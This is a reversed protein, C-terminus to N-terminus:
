RKSRVQRTQKSRRKARRKKRTTKRSALLFILLNMVLVYIPFAIVAFRWDTVTLLTIVMSLASILYSPSFESKPDVLSKKVTPLSSSFDAIMMFLIALLPNKTTAWLVIGILAIIVCILNLGKLQFSRPNKFITATFVLLPSLGLTFTVLATMGVGAQLEAAFAIMPIIAWLLWSVPDPRAKGRLTAVLYTFGASLRLAMAIYIFWIPLM